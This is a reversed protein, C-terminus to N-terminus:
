QLRLASEFTRLEGSIPDVFSLARALLQLPRDFDYPDRDLIVPYLDDNRIPAGLAAMHVRLQHKKGTVPFLAYRWWEGFASRLEIRTRTNPLGPAERSIMFPEGREIRTCRTLPFAVDPLATAIAEYEKQIRHERFLAQYAARSARNTSFMVLGATGRDIRHLPVLDINSLRQKLRTLVTERVYDGVPTVPLFHPKDVVLLHDDQHAISVDFPIRQEAAVERYYHVRLGERYAAEMSLPRGESDLVCGRQFRSAWATEAIGNFHTVLCEFVTRWPGAPLHLTSAAVGDRLPPKRHFLEHQMGPIM